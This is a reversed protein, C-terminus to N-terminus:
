ECVQIPRYARRGFQDVVLRNETWCDPGADYVPGYGYAPAANAAGAAIAGLALGGIIGAAIGAGGGHGGHGHWGRADAAGTTAAMSGVLTLAAAAAIGLKRITFSTNM